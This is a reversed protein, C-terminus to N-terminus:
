IIVALINVLKRNIEDDDNDYSITFSLSKMIGDYSDTLQRLEYNFNGNPAGKFNGILLISLTYIIILYFNFREGFLRNSMVESNGKLKLFYSHFKSLIPEIIKRLFFITLM